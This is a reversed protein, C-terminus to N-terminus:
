CQCACRSNAGYCARGVRAFILSICRLSKELLCTKDVVLGGQFGLFFLCCSRCWQVNLHLVELDPGVM